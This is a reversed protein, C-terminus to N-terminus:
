KPLSVALDAAVMALGARCGALAVDAHTVVDDANDFAYRDDPRLPTDFGADQVDLDYTYSRWFLRTGSGSVVFEAVV